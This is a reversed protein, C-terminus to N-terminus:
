GPEVADGILSAIEEPKDQSAFHGAKDITIHRAGPIVRANAERESPKSWDGDGYVLSVPVQIAPYDARASIWSRWELLLSRFARAHGPLSGCRHMQEVLSPPLRSPDHLGSAVIRRIQWKMETHVGAAGIGPLLLTTFVVNAFLSNRRVGGWHGYDYTNVAVVSRVRPNRRAALLLGISAGISDGAVVAGEIDRAELFSAISDTFYSATYDVRPATSEGHGPLDVAFIEMRAPDLLRVLPDFYELQTRLTHLLVVPAGTGVCFYRLEADGASVRHM